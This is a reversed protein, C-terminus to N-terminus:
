YGTFTVFFGKFFDFAKVFLDFQKLNGPTAHWRKCHSNSSNNEHNKFNITIQWLLLIM